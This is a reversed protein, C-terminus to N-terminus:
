RGQVASTRFSNSFSSPGRLPDQVREAATPNESVITNRIHELDAEAAPALRVKM